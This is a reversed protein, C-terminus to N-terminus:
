FLVGQDAFTHVAPSGSREHTGVGRCLGGQLCTVAYLSTADSKKAPSAPVVQTQGDHFREVLPGSGDDKTGVAVCESATPCSVGSLDRSHLRMRPGPHLSRWTRGNWHYAAAADEGKATSNSGVATCSSATVCALDAFTITEQVGILNDVHATWRGNALLLRHLRNGKGPRFIAVCSRASPCSVGEMFGESDRHVEHWTTGNWAAAIAYAPRLSRTNAFNEGIAVCFQASPCSVGTFFRSGPVGFTPARLMRWRTGDWREVLAAVRRTADDLAYFGVALCATASSCSISTVRVDFTQRPTPASQLAWRSGTWREFLTRYRGGVRAEGVAFCHSRDVCAVDELSATGARPPYAAAVIGM